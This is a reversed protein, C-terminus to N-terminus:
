LLLRKEPNGMAYNGMAGNFKRYGEFATKYAQFKHLLSTEELTILNKSFKFMMSLLYITFSNLNAPYFKVNEALMFNFVLNEGM